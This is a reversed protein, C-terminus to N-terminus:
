PLATLSRLSDVSERYFGSVWARTEVDMEPPRGTALMRGVRLGGARHLRILKVQMPQPLVHRVLKGGVRAADAYSRMVAPFQVIESQNALRPELHEFEDVCLFRCIQNLTQLPCAVLEEFTAVFVRRSGFADLYMRLWTAYLGTHYYGCNEPMPDRPAAGADDLFADCFARSERGYRGAIWWYHSWARDVPNRFVFIFRPDPILEAIKAVARPSVMYGTSSEGRYRVDQASGFMIRYYEIGKDTRTLYHPEKNPSSSSTRTGRSTTTFRRLAPSRRAQCSSIRFSAQIWWKIMVCATPSDYQM